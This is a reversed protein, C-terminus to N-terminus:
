PRAYTHSPGTDHCDTSCSGGSATHAYSVEDAVLHAETTSGHAPSSYTTQTQVDGDIYFRSVGSERVGVLHHWKLDGAYADNDSLIDSSYPWGDTRFVLHGANLGFAYGSGGGFTM